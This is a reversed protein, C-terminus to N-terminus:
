RHVTAIDPSQRCEGLSWKPVVPSLRPMSTARGLDTYAGTSCRHRGPQEQHRGPKKGTCRRDNGIRGSSERNIGSTSFM